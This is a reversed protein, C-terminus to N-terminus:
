ALVAWLEVLLSEAAAFGFGIVALVVNNGALQPLTEEYNMSIVEECLLSM